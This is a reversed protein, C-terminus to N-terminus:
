RGGGVDGGIGRSTNLYKKILECRVCVGLQANEGLFPWSPRLVKLVRRSTNNNKKEQSGPLQWSNQGLRENIEIALAKSM